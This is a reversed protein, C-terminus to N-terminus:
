VNEAAEFVQRIFNTLHIGGLKTSVWEVIQDDKWQNAVFRNVVKSRAEGSLHVFSSNVQMYNSPMVAGGNAPIQFGYAAGNAAGLVIYELGNADAVVSWLEYMKPADATIEAGVMASFVAAMPKAYGGLGAANRNFAEQVEKHKQSKYEVRSMAEQKLCLQAVAQKLKM